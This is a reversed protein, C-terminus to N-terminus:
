NQTKRQWLEIYDLFSPTNNSNHKFFCQELFEGNLNVKLTVKNAVISIRSMKIKNLGRSIVEGIWADDHDYSEINITDRNM